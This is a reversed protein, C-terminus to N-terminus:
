GATITEVRVRLLDQRHGVKLKKGHRRIKKFTILKPGRKEEIIQATVSAGAVVPRGVTVQEGEGVLLVEGFTITDGAKGDLLEVEIVSGPEVRYQKGGTQVVAFM